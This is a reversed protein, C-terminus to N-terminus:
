HSPCVRSCVFLAGPNNVSADPFYYVDVHSFGAAWANQINSRVNPDNWSSKVCHALLFLCVCSGPPSTHVFSRLRSARRRSALSSRSRFPRLSMSAMFALRCVVFKLSVFWQPFFTPSPSFFPSFSGSSYARHRCPLSRRCVQAFFLTLTAIAHTTIYRSNSVSISFVCLCSPFHTTSSSVHTFVFLALM